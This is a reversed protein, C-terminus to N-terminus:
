QFGATRYDRVVLPAKSAEAYPRGRFMNVITGALITGSVDTETWVQVGHDTQDYMYVRVGHPEAMKVLAIGAQDRSMSIANDGAWRVIEYTTSRLEKEAVMYRGADNAIIGIIGIVLLTVLIRRVM